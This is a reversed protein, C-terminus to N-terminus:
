PNPRVHRTVMNTKEVLVKGHKRYIKLVKRPINQDADKGAIVMVNDDLRIRFKNM